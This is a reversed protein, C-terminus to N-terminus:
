SAIAADITAAGCATLTNAIAANAANVNLFRADGVHNADMTLMFRTGVNRIYDATVVGGKWLERQMGVNFQYSRANRFNPDFAALGEPQSIQLTNAVYSPNSVPGQAAVAAQFQQQLAFVLPGAVSMPNGCVGTALDVGNVSTVNGKGPIFFSDTG